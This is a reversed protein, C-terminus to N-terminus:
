KEKSLILVEKILGRKQSNSNINRKAKLTVIRFDKYLNRIIERILESVETAFIKKMRRM